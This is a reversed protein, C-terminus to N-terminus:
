DGIFMTKKLAFGYEIPIGQGLRDNWTRLWPLRRDIDIVIPDKTIEVYAAVLRAKAGLLSAISKADLKRATKPDAPNSFWILRPMNNAVLDRRGNLKAIAFDDGSLGANFARPVLWLANIAGDAAPGYSEGNILAAVIAGRSGLDIFTAQGRVEPNFSGAGPIYPQGRWLVNIVSSGRHIEGGVEVALALRYTYSHTPYASAPWGQGGILLVLGLAVISFTRTLV